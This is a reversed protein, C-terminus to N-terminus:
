KRTASYYQVRSITPNFSFEVILWKVRNFKYNLCIFCITFSWKSRYHDLITRAIFFAHSLSCQSLWNSTSKCCGFTHFKWKPMIKLLFLVVMNVTAVDLITFYGNLCIQWHFFFTGYEHNVCGKNIFSSMRKKTVSFLGCRVCLGNATIFFGTKFIPRTPRSITRYRRKQRNSIRFPSITRWITQM